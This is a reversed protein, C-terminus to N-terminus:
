WFTYTHDVVEYLANSVKFNGVGFSPGFTGGGTVRTLGQQQSVAMNGGQFSHSLDNTLDFLLMPLGKSETYDNFTFRHLVM